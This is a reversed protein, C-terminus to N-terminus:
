WLSEAPLRTTTVERMAGRYFMWIAVAQIAHYLDNHNFWRHLDWGAQQVIAAVLSMLVGGLM